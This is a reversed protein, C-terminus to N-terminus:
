MQLDIIQSTLRSEPLRAVPKLLAVAGVCNFFRHANRRRAGFVPREEAHHDAIPFLRTRQKVVSQKVFIEEELRTAFEESNPFLYFYNQRM